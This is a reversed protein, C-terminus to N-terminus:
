PKAIATVSAAKKPRFADARKRAEAIEQSTMIKDIVAFATGADKDGQDSALKLWKYAEIFDKEVGRGNV